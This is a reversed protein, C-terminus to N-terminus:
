KLPNTPKKQFLALAERWEPVTLPGLKRSEAYRKFGAFQDWKLGCVREFVKLRIRPLTPVEPEPEPEPEPDPIPEPDALRGADLLAEELDAPAGLDTVTEDEIEEPEVQPEEDQTKKRKAM